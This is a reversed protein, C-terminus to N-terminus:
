AAPRVSPTLREACSHARIVPRIRTPSRGNAASPMTKPWRSVGSEIPGAIPPAVATNAIRPPVQNGIVPLVIVFIPSASGDYQSTWAPWTASPPWPQVVVPQTTM